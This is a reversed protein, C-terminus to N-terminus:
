SGTACLVDYRAGSEDRGLVLSVLVRAQGCALDEAFGVLKEAEATGIMGGDRRAVSVIVQEAPMTNGDDGQMTVSRRDATAEYTESRVTEAMATGSLVVLAAMGLGPKMIDMLARTM